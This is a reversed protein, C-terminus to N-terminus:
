GWLEIINNYDSSSESIGVIVYNKGLNLGFRDTKLIVSEGIYHKFIIEKHTLKYRKRTVGYLQSIYNALLQANAESDIVTLFEIDQADPYALLINQNEIIVYRYEQKFKTRNVTTVAGAMENDSLVKNMPQYAIRTRWAPPITEVCELGDDGISRDDIEEEPTEDISLLGITLLGKRSFTVWGGVSKIIKTAIEFTTIDEPCYTGVAWPRSTNMDAFSTLNIDEDTLNSDGLRTKVIKKLIDSATESYGGVNDGEVDATIIGAPQNKLRFLGEALCTIYQGSSLSASMLASYNPYDTHHTINVGQDRVALISKISGDHVQWVQHAWDINIPEIQRCVGYCLPKPKGKLDLGGEKGGLGTYLPRKIKRDLFDSKSRVSLSIEGDTWRTKGGIGSLVLNYDNYSFNKGGVLVKVDRGYFSLDTLDDFDGDNIIRIEGHGTVAPNFPDAGQFLSVDFSYPTELYGRFLQNPPNDTPKTAFGNDSLYVKTLGSSTNYGDLIALFNLEFDKDRLLDQFPDATSRDLSGTWGLPHYGFSLFGIM